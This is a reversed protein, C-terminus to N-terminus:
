KAIEADTAREKAAKWQRLGQVILQFGAASKNQIPVEEMYQLFLRANEGKLQVNVQEPKQKDMQNYLNEM